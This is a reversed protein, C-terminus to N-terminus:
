RTPKHIPCQGSITENPLPSWFNQVNLSRVFLCYYVTFHKPHIALTDAPQDDFPLYCHATTDHSSKPNKRLVFPYEAQM